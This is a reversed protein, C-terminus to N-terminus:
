CCCCSFPYSKGVADYAALAVASQGAEPKPPIFMTMETRSLLWTWDDKAPNGPEWRAAKSPDKQVKLNLHEPLKYTCYVRFFQKPDKILLAELKPDSWALAIARLWTSQWQAMTELGILFLERREGEADGQAGHESKSHAKASLFEFLTPDDAMTM